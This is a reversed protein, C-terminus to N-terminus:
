AGESKHAPAAHESEALRNYNQLVKQSTWAICLTLCLQFRCYVSEMTVDYYPPHDFTDLKM